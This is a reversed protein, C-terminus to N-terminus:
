PRATHGPLALPCTCARAAGPQTSAPPLRMALRWLGGGAVLQGTMVVAYAITTLSRVLAARSTANNLLALPLVRSGLTGAYGMPESSPDYAEHFQMLSAYPELDAGIISLHAPQAEVYAKLPALLANAQEVTGNIGLLFSMHEHTGEPADFTPIFYGGAVVPGSGLAGVGALWGELLVAFSASGQLLEITIFAGTAGAAPYAHTAYTCSTLVGLASGGGGRLAWFLDANECASATVESGNALM